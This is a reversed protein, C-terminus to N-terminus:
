ADCTTIMRHMKELFIDLSSAGIVLASAQISINTTDDILSHIADFDSFQKNTLALKDTAYDQFSESSYIWKRAELKRM